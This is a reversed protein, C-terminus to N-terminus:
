CPDAFLLLSLRGNLNLTEVQGVIDSRFNDQTYPRLFGNKEFDLTHIRIIILEPIGLVKAMQEIRGAAENVGENMAITWLIRQTPDKAIIALMIRIIIDTKGSGFVGFIPVIGHEISSMSKLAAKQGDSLPGLIKALQEGSPMLANLDTKPFYLDDDLDVLANCLHNSTFTQTLEQRIDKTHYQHLGGVLDRFTQQSDVIDVKVETLKDSAAHLELAKAFLTPNELGIVPVFPLMTSVRPAEAKPGFWELHVPRRFMVEIYGEPCDPSTALIEGIWVFRQQRLREARAEEL